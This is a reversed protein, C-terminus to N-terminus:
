FLKKAKKLWYFQFPTLVLFDNQSTPSKNSWLDTWDDIRGTLGLTQYNVLQVTDSLNAVVIIQEGQDSLNYRTFAFIADNGCQLLDRTNYDALEPLTKRLAILRKLQSFVNYQYSDTDHRKDMLDWDLKPRHIWRSDHARNKNELYSSDNFTAVEDGYYLMPIGGFSMILSHLLVIHNIGKNILQKDGVEIAKELGILSALSGSIRADGTKDNKAFTQGQANSDEFGGSFYDILFKRHDDPSYGAHSIDTDSFAFGIDDHSRLYNLWTAGELKDPLNKVGEYLLKANKTAVSDWLLAMFTANYAIDCEKAVVSDEGFYKVVEEPAVIAEAIFIVGPAVVQCCDTMLQLILHAENLNQCSTGIKKWLFAVADLRLIDVGKNAWFLIIDLMEIFVDPNSYNLDWQYNHFVTMVWRQAEENWTFNGPDTEPFVEPLSASFLDPITESEFSYFFDSYRSDGKKAKQAFEHQDSCHNIVIDLAILSKNEHLKDIINQLGKNSGMRKDVKRFDNVAYGGDSAGVPCQLLPLIHVLNVGLEQFYDLKEELGKLNEAFQDGYLAMAVWEQSLFWRHNGERERDKNKLNKPRQIYNRAMVEVLRSLQEYFHPHNGYLKSFLQHIVYFNAGLRSYFYRLESKQIEPRLEDLIKNLLSHSIQEYM